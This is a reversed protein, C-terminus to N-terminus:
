YLTYNVGSGLPVEERPKIGLENKYIYILSGPNTYM